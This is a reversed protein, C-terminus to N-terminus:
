SPSVEEPSASARAIWRELGKEVHAAPFVAGVIGDPRVLAALDPDLSSPERAPPVPFRALATQSPSSRGVVTFGGGAAIACPPREGVIWSGRAESPLLAASATAIDRYGLRLQASTELFARGFWRMSRLTWEARQARRDGGLVSRTRRGAEALVRRAVHRREVDYSALLASGPDAGRALAWALKWALNAADHLGTNMGQAGMPSQVHAADGTLLVRGQQLRDALHFRPSFRTLWGVDEIALPPASTARAADEFDAIGPARDNGDALATVLRLSGDGVPLAILFRGGPGLFTAREDPAIGDLSGRVDAMVFRAGAGSGPFDIGALARVTSRAGDAGITFRATHMEEAGGRALVTRVVEPGAELGVLETAREVAVGAKALADALIAETTRQPIQLLFPFASRIAGGDLRAIERGEEFVRLTRVAIGRSLLPAALGHLALVELSRPQITIARSEPAPAPARDVIRVVVGARRLLLALLLGVPGAGVVLVDSTSM